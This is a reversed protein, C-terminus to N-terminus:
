TWTIVLKKLRADGSFTFRLPQIGQLERQVQLLLIYDLNMAPRGRMASRSPYTTPAAQLSTSASFVLIAAGALKLRKNASIM